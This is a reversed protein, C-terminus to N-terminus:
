PASDGAIMTLELPHNGLQSFAYRNADALDATLFYKGPLTPPNIALTLDVTGGPPIVAEFQGARSLQNMKMDPGVVWYRVHIGTETGPHFHWPEPSTNVARVRVVAPVGVPFQKPAEILEL